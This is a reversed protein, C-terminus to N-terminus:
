AIQSLNSLAADAHFHASDSASRAERCTAHADEILRRAKDIQVGAIEMAQRANQYLQFANSLQNVAVSTDEAQDRLAGTSDETLHEIQDVFRRFIHEGASDTWDHRAEAVLENGRRLSYEAGGITDALNRSM